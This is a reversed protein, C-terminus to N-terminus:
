DERCVGSYYLPDQFALLYCDTLAELHKHEDASLEVGGTAYQQTTGVLTGYSWSEGSSAWAADM